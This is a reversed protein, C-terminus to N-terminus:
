SKPYLLEKGPWSMDSENVVLSYPIFHEQSLVMTLIKQENKKSPPPSSFVTCITMENRYSCQHAKFCLNSAFPQYTPIWKPITLKWNYCMITWPCFVQDFIFQHTLLFFLCFVFFGSPIWTIYDFFILYIPRTVYLTSSLLLFNEEQKSPIHVKSCNYNANTSYRNWFAEVKSLDTCYEPKSKSVLEPEASSWSFTQFPLWSKLIIM